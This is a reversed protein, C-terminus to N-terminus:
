ADQENANELRRTLARRETHEIYAFSGGMFVAAGAGSLLAPYIPIKTSMVWGFLAGVVLSIVAHRIGSM